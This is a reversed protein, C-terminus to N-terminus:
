EESEKETDDGYLMLDLLARDNDTMVNATLNVNNDPKDGVTDRIFEMAKVDGEKLVKDAIKELMVGYKTLDQAEHGLIQTAKEPTLEKSLILDLLERAQKRRERNRKQTEVSKRHMEARQEPTFESFPKLNKYRKPKEEAIEQPKVESNNDLNNNANLDTM